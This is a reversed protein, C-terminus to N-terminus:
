TNMEKLRQEVAEAFAKGGDTINGDANWLNRCALLNVTSSRLTKWKRPANMGHRFGELFWYEAEPNEKAAMRIVPSQRIENWKKIALKLDSM